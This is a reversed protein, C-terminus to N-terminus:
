RVMIARTRNVDGDITEATVLWVVTVVWDPLELPLLEVTVWDDSEFRDLEPFLTSTSSAGMDGATGSGGALMNENM